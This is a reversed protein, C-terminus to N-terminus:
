GSGDSGEVGRQGFMSRRRSHRSAYGASVMVWNNFIKYSVALQVGQIHISDTRLM